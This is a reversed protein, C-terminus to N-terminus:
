PRWGCLRQGLRNHALVDKVEDDSMADIAQSSLRIPDSVACFSGRPSTCGAIAILAFIACTRTLPGM